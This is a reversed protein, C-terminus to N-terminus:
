VDRKPKVETAASSLVANHTLVSRLLEVPNCDRWDGDMGGTLHGLAVNAADRLRDIEDLCECVVTDGPEPLLPACARMKKTDM